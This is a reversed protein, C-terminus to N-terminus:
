DASVRKETIFLAVVFTLITTVAAGVEGPISVPPSLVFTNIIWVFGTTVAGALAGANVKSSMTGLTAM